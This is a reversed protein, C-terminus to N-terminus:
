REQTLRQSKAKDLLQQVLFEMNRNKIIACFNLPGLEIFLKGMFEDAFSSSIVPIGTWDVYIPYNPKSHIFNLTKMKLQRGASRTGFGTTEDKMNILLCDKESMEYDLDIINLPTYPLPGGFNLAEVISFKKNMKIQGSVSTGKFCQNRESETKHSDETTAFFRGTGSTIDM